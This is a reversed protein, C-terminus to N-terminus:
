LMSRILKRGPWPQSVSAKAYQVMKQVPLWNRPLEMSFMMNAAIVDSTFQPVNFGDLELESIIKLDAQLGAIFHSKLRGGRRANVHLISLNETSPGPQSEIGQSCLVMKSEGHRWKCAWYYIEIAPRVDFAVHDRAGTTSGTDASYSYVNAEVGERVFALSRCALDQPRAGRYPQSNKSTRLTSAHEASLQRCPVLVGPLAPVPEVM